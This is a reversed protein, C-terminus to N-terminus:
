KWTKNTCLYWPTERKCLVTLHAMQEKDALFNPKLKGESIWKEIQNTPIRAVQHNDEMKSSKSEMDRMMKAHKVAPTEDQYDVLSFKGDKDMHWFSAIEGNKM